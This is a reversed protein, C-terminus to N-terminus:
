WDASMDPEDALVLNCALVKYEQGSVDRFHVLKYNPLPIFGLVVGVIQPVNGAFQGTDHLWNGAYRVKSGLVIRASRADILQKRLENNM